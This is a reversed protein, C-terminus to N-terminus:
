LRYKLILDLSSRIMADVTKKPTNSFAQTVRNALIANISVAKHGLLNSLGYIGATEMELNTVRLGKFEIDSVRNFIDTRSPIRISRSQPGYFGPATITIGKNAIGSFADVLVADAYAAYHAGDIVLAKLEAHSDLVPYHKLLVDMGIAYESVILSDIEVEKRIAGSTGLRIFTLSSLEPKEMRTTLDVNRLADLENIVIDINDTGIGTSIVTLRKGSISGTVTYFERRKKEFSVKDFHQTVQNVRDPDGVTIITDAIDDPGLGLHYITGDDNLILESNSNGM